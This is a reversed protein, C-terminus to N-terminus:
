GLEHAHALIINQSLHVIFRTELLGHAFQVSCVCVAELSSWDFYKRVTPSHRSPCQCAECAHQSLNLGRLKEGWKGMRM